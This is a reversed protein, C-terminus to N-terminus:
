YSVKLQVTDERVNLLENFTNVFSQYNTNCLKEIEVDYQKVRDESRKMFEEKQNNEYVNRDFKLCLKLLVFKKLVEM